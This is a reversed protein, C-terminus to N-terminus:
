APFLQLLSHFAGNSGCHSGSVSCDSIVYVINLNLEYAIVISHRYSIQLSGVDGFKHANWANHDARGTNLGSGCFKGDFTSAAM